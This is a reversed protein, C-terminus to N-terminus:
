VTVSLKGDEDVEVAVYRKNTRDYGFLVVDQSPKTKVDYEKRSM